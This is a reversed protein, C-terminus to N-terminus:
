AVTGAPQGDADAHAPGAFHSYNRLDLEGPERTFEFKGSEHLMQGQEACHFFAEEIGPISRILGQNNTVEKIMDPPVNYVPTAQSAGNIAITHCRASELTAVAIQDDDIGRVLQTFRKLMHVRNSYDGHVIEDDRGHRMRASKIDSTWRVEGKDGRLLMSPHHTTACAHTLLVLLTAGGEVTLRMSITDYNEIEAARYLEATVHEPKASEWETPGLLFLAINIYHALANNAPSDMVWTDGRKLRGAWNSRGFYKDPRPWCAYLTGETIRGFEGALLRRKLPMTVSDYVDHFGVAVPLGSKDRAAIMADLDDVSGAVPKEVMVAKGAVLAQETFPRHLDIPIPLWVAEVGPHALLQEYTNYVAVNQAALDTDRGDHGTPNPDCVAALTAAPDITKGHNLILNSISVAFGGM